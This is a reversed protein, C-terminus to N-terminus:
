ENATKSFSTRDFRCKVDNHDLASLAENISAKFPTTYLQEVVNCEIPNYENMLAM